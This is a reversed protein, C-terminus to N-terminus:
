ITEDKITKTSQTEHEEIMHKDGKDVNNFLTRCIDCNFAADTEKESHYSDMHNYGQSITNFLKGCAGCSVLSEGEKVEEKKVFIVSKRQVTKETEGTFLPNLKLREEGPVYHEPNEEETEHQEVNEEVSENQEEIKEEESESEDSLEEQLPVLHIKQSATLDMSSQQTPNQLFFSSVDSSAQVYIAVTFLAKADIM